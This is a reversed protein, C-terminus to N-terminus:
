YKGGKRKRALKASRNSIFRARGNAMLVYPRGNKAIRIRRRSRDKRGRATYPTSRKGKARLRKKITARRKQLATKKKRGKSSASRTTKKRSSKKPKKRALGAISVGGVLAAAAAGGGAIAVSRPNAKVVDVVVGKVNAVQGAVKGAIPAVRAFRTVM